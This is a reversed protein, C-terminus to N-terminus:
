QEIKGGLDDPRQQLENGHHHPGMEDAFVREADDGQHDGRVFQQLDGEEGPPRLERQSEESPEAVGLIRTSEVPGLVGNEDDRGRHLAEGRDGNQQEDDRRIGGFRQDDGGDGVHHGTRQREIDALARADRLLDPEVRDLLNEAGGDSEDGAPDHDLQDTGRRLPHQGAVGDSLQHGHQQDQREQVEAKAEARDIAPYELM